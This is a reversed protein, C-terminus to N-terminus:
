LQEPQLNKLLPLWDLAIGQGVPLELHAAHERTNASTHLHMALVDFSNDGTWLMTAAMM